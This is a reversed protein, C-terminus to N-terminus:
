SGAVGYVRDLLYQNFQWLAKELHSYRGPEARPSRLGRWVGQNAVIDEQNIADIAARLNEIAPKNEPDDLTAPPVLLHIKLRFHDFSDIEMQFWNCQDAFLALLHSPFAVAVLFERHLADPLGEIVPLGSLLKGGEKAPNRLLLYPGHSDEAYTGGGPVIPQLSSSHIGTHHYSESFNEVMVKWNWPSEYVLPEVTVAESLRYPEIVRRLPELRPGLPEADPDLNVFVWGEWIELKAEPLHCTTRDFRETRDMFPAGSLRGDLGYTWLHYPCQFSKRNGAGEVILMSRHRCVRSLARLEGDRGRVIVLPEGAVEASFYDGPNTVQDLRGVCIWERRFIKEVEERFFDPDTYCDPPLTSARELPARAAAIAADTITRPM